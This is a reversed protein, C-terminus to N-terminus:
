VFLDGMAQVNELFHLGVEGERTTAGYLLDTPKMISPDIQSLGPLGLADQSQEDAIEVPSAVHTLDVVFVEVIWLGVPRVKDLM